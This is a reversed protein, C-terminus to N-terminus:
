KLHKEVFEGIYMIKVKKGNSASLMLIIWMVLGIPALIAGFIWGIVPVLSSISFVILFILSFYISQLAHFRVVPNEKEILLVILASVFGVLYALSSAANENLRRSAPYSEEKAVKFVTQEGFNETHNAKPMKFNNEIM